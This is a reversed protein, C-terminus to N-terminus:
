QQVPKATEKAEGSCCSKKEDSKCCAKEDGTCAAKGSTCSAMTKTTKTSTKVVESKLGAAVPLLKADTRDYQCCEDLEKYSAETAKFGPTDYGAEAIKKEIKATNSSSSLYSFSLVKTQKDWVATTAGAEKAAKEIKTKCMGCVGPIKLTETKTEQAMMTTSIALCIIVASLLKMTKM